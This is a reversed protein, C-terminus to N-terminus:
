LGVKKLTLEIANEVNKQVQSESNKLAASGHGKPPNNISGFEILNGLAGQRKTKDPGIEARIEAVSVDGFGDSFGEVDYSISRPYHPAHRMGSANERWSDKVMLASKEFASVLNPGIHEGLELDEVLREVESLDVQLDM